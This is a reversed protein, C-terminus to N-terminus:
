KLFFRNLVKFIAKNKYYDLEKENKAIEAERDQLEKKKQQLESFLTENERKVSGLEKGTKILEYERETIEWEKDQIVTKLEDNGFFYDTVSDVLSDFGLTKRFLINDDLPKISILMKLNEDYDYGLRDFNEKGIFKMYDYLLRWVQPNRAQEIWKDTNKSDIFPENYVKGQDGYDWKGQCTENYQLMSEEYEVGIYDCLRKILTHQEVLLDEYHFIFIRDRYNKIAENLINVADILDIRYSSLNYLREGVWTTLISTLVDLPNRLLIIYKAEPFLEMLEDIILYYRPTKDLFYKRKKKILMSKYLAQYMNGLGHLYEDKGGPLLNIFDNAAKQYLHIDYETYIGKDKFAFLPHLLIWSESQTYIESHSGLIRQTLTSGSRPQSILFIMNNANKNNM